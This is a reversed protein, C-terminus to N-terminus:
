GRDKKLEEYIKELLHTQKKLEGMMERQNQKDEITRTKNYYKMEYLNFYWVVSICLFYFVTESKHEFM